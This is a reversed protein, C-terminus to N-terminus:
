GWRWWRFGADRAGGRGKKKKERENKVIQTM